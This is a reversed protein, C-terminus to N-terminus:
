NKGGKSNPLSYGAEFAAQEAQERSLKHRKILYRIYAGRGLTSGNMYKSSLSWPKQNPAYAALGERLNLDDSNNSSSNTDQIKM